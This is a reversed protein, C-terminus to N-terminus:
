KVKGKMYATIKEEIEEITYTGSDTLLANVIDRRNRFKECAILQSKTFRVAQPMQTEDKRVKEKKQAAM